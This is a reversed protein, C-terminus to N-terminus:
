KPQSHAWAFWGALLSPSSPGPLDLTRHAAELQPCFSTLTCGAYSLRRYVGEAGKLTVAVLDAETEEALAESGGRSVQEGCGGSQQPQRGVDGGVQAGLGSAHGGGEGLARGMVRHRDHEGHGKGVSVAM